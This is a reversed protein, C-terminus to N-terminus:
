SISEINPMEWEEPSLLQGRWVHVKPDYAPGECQKCSIPPFGHDLYESQPFLESVSPGGMDSLTFKDHIVIRSEFKFLEPDFQHASKHSEYEQLVCLKRRLQTTKHMGLARFNDEYIVQRRYTGLLKLSRNPKLVFDLPSFIWCLMITQSSDKKLEEVAVKWIGQAQENAKQTDHQPEPRAVLLWDTTMIVVVDWPHEDISGSLQGSAPAYVTEYIDLFLKRGNPDDKAYKIIWIDRKEMTKGFYDSRKTKFEPQKLGLINTETGTM